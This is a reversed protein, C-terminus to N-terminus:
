SAPEAESLTDEVAGLKAELDAYGAARLHWPTGWDPQGMQFLGTDKVKLERDKLFARRYMRPAVGVFPRFLVRGAQGSGQAASPASWATTTTQISDEHLKLAQSKPYPEIYQVEDVGASVVHRACYHCPFTTVFLRCGITSKGIRAASLLADMEAHVARSFELLDGIGSGRIESAILAKREPPADNLEPIAAILDNVMKHQQSTNRCFAGSYACRHDAAHDDFSEGYVGGGARPAENTGTAVVNGDKDILAAGVQRSLCASRMSASYAHHMATEAIKPRVVEAHTVIKVLRSLDDAVHWDPNGKGGEILRPLSNDIFFDALHFADSVRQGNKSAGKADRAMLDRAADKGANGYKNTLREIRVEEECVVGILVFADQYIHRLLEVESPHRISDVIYARPKGDPLVAEREGPTVARKTARVSRIRRAVAEAVAGYDPTTARMKDGLDQLAITTTVDNRTKPVPLGKGSAWEEIVDRAKIIEADFPGGPLQGQMLLQRLQAAIESTGSGVHGVVAFVIENAANGLVKEKASPETADNAPVSAIAPESM